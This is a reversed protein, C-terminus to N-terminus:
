EVPKATAIEEVDLGCQYVRVLLFAPLENDFNWACSCVVHLRSAGITYSHTPRHLHGFFLATPQTRHILDNFYRSDNRAMYMNADSGNPEPPIHAFIIKKEEPGGLESELWECQGRPGFDSSALQGVHDGGSGANCIGIFRVGKHVFSYYDSPEGNVRFDESFRARLEAKRKGIEHNGAIVHLPIPARDIADGAAWLHIDGLVLAFDPYGDGSFRECAHFCALFQDRHSDREEFHPDAIVAYSFTQTM